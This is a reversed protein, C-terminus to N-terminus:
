IVKHQIISYRVRIRVIRTRLVEKKACKEDICQFNKLM